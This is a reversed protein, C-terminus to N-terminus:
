SEKQGLNAIQRLLGVIGIGLSLAESPGIRRRHSGGEAEGEPGPLAPQNQLYLYVAAVGLLAGLIGGFLLLRRQPNM